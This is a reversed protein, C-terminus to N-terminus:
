LGGYQCDSIVMQAFQPGFLSDMQSSQLLAQCLIVTPPKCGVAGEKSFLLLDVLAHEFVKFVNKNVELGLISSM